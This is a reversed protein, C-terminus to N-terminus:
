KALVAPSAASAQGASPCGFNFAQSPSGSKAMNKADPIRSQHRSLDDPFEQDDHGIPMKASGEFRQDALTPIVEPHARFGELHSSVRVGIRATQPRGDREQSGEFVVVLSYEDDEVVVAAAAAIEGSSIWRRTSASKAAFPQRPLDFAITM